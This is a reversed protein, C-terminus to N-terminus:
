HVYGTEAEITILAANSVQVTQMAALVALTNGCVGTSVTMTNPRGLCDFSLSTPVSSFTAQTSTIPYPTGSPSLVTGTPATTCNSNSGYTLNVSNLTFTACVFRHQAIATKQAYRLTSIVQDYFGRSEFTSREFFRPVVMASMIGVIVIVTILETM